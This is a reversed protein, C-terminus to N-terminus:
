PWPVRVGLDELVLFHWPVEEIAFAANKGLYFASSRQQGTHIMMFQKEWYRSPVVYTVESQPLPLTEVHVRWEREWSYDIGKDPEYRVHRYRQEPHLLDYDAEPQYIVPRGGVSSLWNKRVLVGFPAYRIGHVTPLALIQALASIPAETFCACKFGGRIHGNNGRLSASSIISRFNAEVEAPTGKTFHILCDSLDSRIM